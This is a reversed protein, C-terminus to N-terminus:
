KKSITSNVNKKKMAPLSSFFLIISAPSSSNSLIFPLPLTLLPILKGINFCIHLLKPKDELLPLAARISAILPLPRFSSARCENSLLSSPFVGKLFSLFVMGRITFINNEFASANCRNELLKSENEALTRLYESDWRKRFLKPSRKRKTQKRYELIVMIEDLDDGCLALEDDRRRKNLYFLELFTTDIM